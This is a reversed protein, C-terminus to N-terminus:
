DDLPLRFLRITNRSTTTGVEAVSKGLATALAAAVKVVLAPENRRGRGPEPALYPSDTEVHIRDLPLRRAVERLGAARPFTIVGTFSLDLGLDLLKRAFPYDGSFCHVVGRLPKGGEGSEEKLVSLTDEDASRSHIVVPADLDRALRLFERFCTRQIEGPSHLYHYDLGTEGIGVVRPHAAMERIRACWDQGVKAADHPHVGITTFVGPYKSVLAVSNEIGALSSASAIAVIAKLGAAWAREVVEDRDLDFAKMDLHAHADICV